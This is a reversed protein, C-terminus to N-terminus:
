LSEQHKCPKPESLQFDQRLKQHMELDETHSTALGEEMTRQVIVDPHPPRDPVQHLSPFSKPTRDTPDEEIFLSGICGSLVLPGLIILFLRFM